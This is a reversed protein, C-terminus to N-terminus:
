RRRIVPAKQVDLEVPASEIRGTWLAAGDAGKARKSTYAAQVRWKGPQQIPLRFAFGYQGQGYSSVFAMAGAKIRTVDSAGFPKAPRSALWTYLGATVTKASASQAQVSFFRDGPYLSVAIDKDSTNRLAAVSALYVGAPVRVWRNGRRVRTIAGGLQFKTTRPFFTFQLGNVTKGWPWGNVNAAREIEAVDQKRNLKFNRFYSPLYYQDKGPLKRLILVYSSNVRLSPYSPGDAIIVLRGGQAPPRAQAVVAVKLGKAAKAGGATKIVRSVAFTYETFWAKVPRPYDPLAKEFQAPVAAATVKGIVILESKSTIIELPVDVMMARGPGAGSLVLLATICALGKRLM